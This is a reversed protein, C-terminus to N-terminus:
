PSGHAPVSLFERSNIFGEGLRSRPKPQHTLALSNEHLLAVSRSSILHQDVVLLKSLCVELAACLRNQSAMCRAKKM